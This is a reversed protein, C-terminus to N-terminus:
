PVASVKELLGSKCGPLDNPPDRVRYIEAGLGQQGGGGVKCIMGTGSISVSM